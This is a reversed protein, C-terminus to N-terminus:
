VKEVSKLTLQSGSEETEKNREDSKKDLEIFSLSLSRM